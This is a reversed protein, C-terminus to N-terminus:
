GPVFRCPHNCHHAMGFVRHRCQDGIFPPARHVSGGPHACPWTRWHAPNWYWKKSSNNTLSKILDQPVEFDVFVEVEETISSSVGGEGFAVIKVLYTNVGTKKYFNSAKGNSSVFPDESASNGFYFHYNLAESATAQFNVLGTGDSSVEATVGLNTPVYLTGLEPVEEQCGNIIFLMMLSFVIKNITKM